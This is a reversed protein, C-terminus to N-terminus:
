EESEMFDRPDIIKDFIDMAELAGIALDCAQKQRITCIEIDNKLVEIAEKNTMEENMM